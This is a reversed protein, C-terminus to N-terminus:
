PVIVRPLTSVDYGREQLVFVRTNGDFIRGDPKVKLPEASGPKLSKVIAETSMKRVSDTAFRASGTTLTEASHIRQLAPLVGRLAGLPIAMSSLNAVGFLVNGMGGPSLASPSGGASTGTGAGPGARGRTGTITIVNLTDSRLEVRRCNEEAAWKDRGDPDIYKYPNLGAYAYRNFSEGTDADTVVPDVSLFRGALPEYYRQQMYLTPESMVEDYDAAL